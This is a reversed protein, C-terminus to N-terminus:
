EEHMLPGASMKEKKEERWSGDAPRFLRMAPMRGNGRRIGCKGGVPPGSERAQMLSAAGICMTNHLERVTLGVKIPAGTVSSLPRVSFAVVNGTLRMRNHCCSSLFVTLAKPPRNRPMLYPKVLYEGGVRSIMPPQTATRLRVLSFSTPLQRVPLKQISGNFTGHGVM